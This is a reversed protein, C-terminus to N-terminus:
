YSCRATGVRNVFSLGVGRRLTRANPRNPRPFLTARGETHGTQLGTILHPLSSLPMRMLLVRPLCPNEGSAGEECRYGSLIRLELTVKTVQLM